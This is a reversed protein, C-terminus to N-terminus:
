LHEGSRFRLITFLVEEELRCYTQMCSGDCDDECSGQDTFGECLDDGDEINKKQEKLGYYQELAEHNCCTCDEDNIYAECILANAMKLPLKLFIIVM